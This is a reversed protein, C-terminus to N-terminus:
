PSAATSPTADERVDAKVRDVQEGLPGPHVARTFINDWRVESVWYVHDTWPERLKLKSTDLTFEVPEFPKSARVPWLYLEGAHVEYDLKQIQIAQPDHHFAVRLLDGDRTTQRGDIWGAQQRPIDRTQPNTSCGVAIALVLLAAVIGTPM